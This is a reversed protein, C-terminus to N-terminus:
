LSVGGVIARCAWIAAYGVVTFLAGVIIRGGVCNCSLGLCCCLRVMTRCHGGYSAVLGWLPEGGAHVADSTERHEM